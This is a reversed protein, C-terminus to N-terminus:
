MLFLLSICLSVLHLFSRPVLIIHELADMAFSLSEVTEVSEVLTQAKMKELDLRALHERGPQLYLQQRMYHNVMTWSSVTIVTRSPPLSPTNYACMRANYTSMPLLKERMWSELITYQPPSFPLKRTEGPAMDQTSSLPHAASSYSVFYSILGSAFSLLCVLCEPEM